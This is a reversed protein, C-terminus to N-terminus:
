PSLEEQQGLLNVAESGDGVAGASHTLYTSVEINALHQRVVSSINAVQEALHQCELELDREFNPTPQVEEAQTVNERSQRNRKDQDPDPITAMTPKESRFAGTLSQLM